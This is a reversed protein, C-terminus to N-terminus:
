VALFFVKQTAAEAKNVGIYEARKAIEAPLLADNRLESTM